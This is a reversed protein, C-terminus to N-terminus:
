NVVTAGTGDWHVRRGDALAYVMGAKRQSKDTPMPPASAGAKPQEVYQGTRSDFVRAPLTRVVGNSPDVEQGGGVVVFRDAPAKGQALLIQRQIENRKDPNQEAMLKEQLAQLQRQAASKFGQAEQRMALDENAIGQRGEMEAQRLAQEQDVQAAKLNADRNGAMFGLASARDRTNGGTLMDRVVEDNTTKRWGIGNGGNFAIEDRLPAMSARIQSEKQLIGMVDPSAASGMGPRFGLGAGPAAAPAAADARQSGPQFGAPQGVNTFTPSQGSEDIRRVGPVSTEKGPLPAPSAAAPAPTPSASAAPAPTLGPNTTLSQAQPSPSAAAPQEPQAILDARNRQRIEDGRSDFAGFSLKNATAGYATGLSDLPGKVPSELPAAPKTAAPAGIQGSSARAPDRVPLDNREAGPIPAPGPRPPTSGPAQYDFPGRKNPDEVLGGDAFYLDPRSQDEGEPGEQEYKEAAEEAPEHTAAKMGELVQVGIAHVQEPSLRFEGNSLNVPVQATPGFGLGPGPGAEKKQAAPKMGPQFGMAAMNQEGIEETSDAPMIYTGPPVSTKVSDSTGTGPGRVPGSGTDRALLDAARSGAGFGLGSGAASSSKQKNRVEGGNAFGQAEEQPQPPEPTMGNTIQLGGPTGFGNSIQLPPQMGAIMAANGISHPDMRSGPAYPRGVASLASRRGSGATQALIAAARGGPGFGLGPAPSRNAQADAGPGRVEGGDALKQAQPRDSRKQFGYM